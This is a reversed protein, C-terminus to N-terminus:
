PPINPVDVPLDLTFTAGQDVGNSRVSLSGGMEQAALV